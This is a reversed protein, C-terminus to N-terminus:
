NAKNICLRVKNDLITGQGINELHDKRKGKKEKAPKDSIAHVLHRGMKSKFYVYEMFVQIM